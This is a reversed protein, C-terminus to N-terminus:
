DNVQAQMEVDIHYDYIMHDNPYYYFAETM